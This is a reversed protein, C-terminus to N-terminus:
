TDNFMDSQSPDETRAKEIVNQAENMLEGLDKFQRYVSAFRVYAIQDTQRLFEMVKEGIFSSPVERQFERAITEEVTDVIRAIMEASVPRKYCAKQIGDAIANRNFPVRSGDKKVVTLRVTEEIREYTTYRRNCHDCARRRRIADGGEVPRSDIVRDEDTNHCFPCRVYYGPFFLVFDRREARRHQVSAQLNRAPASHTLERAGERRRPMTKFPM